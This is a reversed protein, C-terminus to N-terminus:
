ASLVSAFESLSAITKDRDQLANENVYKKLQPNSELMAKWSAKLKHGNKGIRGKADGQIPFPLAPKPFQSLWAEASKDVAIRAMATYFLFPLSAIQKLTAALDEHFNTATMAAAALKILSFIVLIERVFGLQKISIFRKALLMILARVVADVPRSRGALPSLTNSSIIWSDIIYSKLVAVSEILPVGGIDVIIQYFRTSVQMAAFSISGRELIRTARQHLENRQVIQQQNNNNMPNLPSIPTRQALLSTLTFEVDEEVRDEHDDNNFTLAILPLQPHQKTDQM